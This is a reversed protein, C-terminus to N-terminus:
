EEAKAGEGVNVLPEVDGDKNFLGVLLRDRTHHGLFARLGPRGLSRYIVFTEERGFSLRVAFGIGPPCEKMKESVTLVRWRVPRRNRDADWSVVLPLWARKADKAQRLVLRRDDVTFSGRDTPYPLAPLGLPLVLASSRSAKLRIARSEEVAAASVGPAIDISLM